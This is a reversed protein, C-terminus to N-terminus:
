GRRLVRGLRPDVVEGGELAIEGAMMVLEIGEAQLTPEEYTSRDTVRGPDFVVVDAVRGPALRGRDRLGLISAPLGTMRHVAESLTLLARERVAWGLMRAFTGYARPHVRATRSTVGLQDSGITTRPHALVSEVDPEAMLTVIMTTAARDAVLLDLVFTLPEM